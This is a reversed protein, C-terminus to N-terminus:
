PVQKSTNTSLILHKWVQRIVDTSSLDEEWAVECSIMDFVSPPTADRKESVGPLGEEMLCASHCVYRGETVVDRKVGFVICSRLASHRAARAM